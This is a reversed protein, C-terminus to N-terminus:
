GECIKCDLEGWRFGDRIAESEERRKSGRVALQFGQPENLSSASIAKSPTLEEGLELRESKTTNNSNRGRLEGGQLM